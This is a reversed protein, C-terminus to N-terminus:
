AKISELWPKLVTKISNESPVSVEVSALRSPSLQKQAGAPYIDIFTKGAKKATIKGSADVTAVSTDRSVLSVASDSDVKLTASEKPASFQISTFSPTVVQKEPVINFTATATGTYIGIGTVTVKGQGIETNDSYSLTYDNNRILKKDGLYVHPLPYFPQGNYVRDKMKGVRCGSIDTLQGPKSIINFTRSIQGTYNGIGVATVTGQGVEINDSYTLRYDTDRTLASGNFYVRPRPCLAEGTYVRDAMRGMKGNKSLDSKAGSSDSPSNGNSTETENVNSNSQVNGNGTGNGNSNEPSDDENSNSSNGSVNGNGNGNENDVTNGNINLNGSGEQYNGNDAENDYYFFSDDAWAPSATGSFTLALAGALLFCGAKGMAQGM